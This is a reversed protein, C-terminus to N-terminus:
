ANEGAADIAARVFTNVSGITERWASSGDDWCEAVYRRIGLEWAIRAGDSFNVHGEGFPIGRDKGPVTEKIHMALLHGKGTRLDEQVSAHYLVAANTLNGLDPYVGLWPSGIERVYRMAKATTDMFSTDMTEFGLLVGRCAAMETCKALNERFRKETEPTSPEYFVDYGALQILRIGLDASLDLAKEMIELSKQRLAPDTSGLSYKRHASLCMSRVPLGASEQTRLFTRRQRQDWNLRDQRMQSEDISLEMFDFGAEAIASFREGWGLSAPTAKEYLGLQYSRM